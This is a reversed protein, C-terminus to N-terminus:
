GITMCMYFFTLVNMARDYDFYVWDKFCKMKSRNKPDEKEFGTQLVTYKGFKADVAFDLQHWSSTLSIDVACAFDVKLYTQLDLQEQQLAKDLYYQTDQIALDEAALYLLRSGVCFDVERTRWLRQVSVSQKKHVDKPETLEDIDVEQDEKANEKLWATM